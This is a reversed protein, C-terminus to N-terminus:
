LHLYYDKLLKKFHDTYNNDDGKITLVKEFFTTHNRGFIIFVRFYNHKTTQKILVKEEIFFDLTKLLEDFDGRRSYPLLIAAKGSTSLNHYIFQILEALTLTTDHRAANKEKNESRLDNEFFPPNSIILDYKKDPIYQQISANFVQLREKWPSLEFNNKAQLYAQEDIEVADITATSKQAVMLALLGTGTGIDLINSTIPQINSTIYAGFLCSDTCVKMACNDQHITFQKFQFYSNM